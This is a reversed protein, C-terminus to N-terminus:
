TRGTGFDGGQQLASGALSTSLTTSTSYSQLIQVMAAGQVSYNKSEGRGHCLLKWPRRLPRVHYTFLRFRAASLLGISSSDKMSAVGEMSM